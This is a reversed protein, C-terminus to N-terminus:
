NSQYLNNDLQVCFIFMIQEDLFDNSNLFFQQKAHIIMNNVKNRQVKYKCINNINPQKRMKKHLSDRIKMERKIGSNFWPKDRDRITITKTPICERTFELYKRYIACV